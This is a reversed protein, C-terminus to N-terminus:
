IRGAITGEIDGLGDADDAVSLRSNKCGTVKTDTNGDDGSDTVVDIQAPEDDLSGSGAIGPYLITYRRRQVDFITYYTAKPKGSNVL